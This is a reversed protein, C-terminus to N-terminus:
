RSSLFCIISLLCYKEKWWNGMLFISTSNRWWKHLVKTQQLKALLRVKTKFYLHMGNVWNPPCVRKIFPAFELLIKDRFNCSELVQWWITELVLVWSFIALVSLYGQYQVNQPLNNHYLIYWPLKITHYYLLSKIHVKWINCLALLLKCSYAINCCKM